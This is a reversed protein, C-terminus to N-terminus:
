WFQIINKTYVKGNKQETLDKGEFSNLANSLTEKIKWPQRKPLLWHNLEQLRQASKSLREQQEIAL